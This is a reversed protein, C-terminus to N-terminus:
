VTPIPKRATTKGRESKKHWEDTNWGMCLEYWIDEHVFCPPYECMVGFDYENEPIIHGANRAKKTSEDRHDLM